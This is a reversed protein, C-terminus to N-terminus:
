KFNEHRDDKRKLKENQEKIKNKKKEGDRCYLSSHSDEDIEIM